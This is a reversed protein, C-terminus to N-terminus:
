RSRVHRRARHQPRGHGGAPGLAGVRDRRALRRRRHGACGVASSRARSWTSATCPRSGSSTPASATAARSGASWTWAATTSRRRTAGARPRRRRGPRGLWPSVLVDDPRGTRTPCSGSGSASGISWASGDGLRRHLRDPGRERDAAADSRARAPQSRGRSRRRGARQPPGPHVPQRLENAGDYFVALDPRQGGASSSGAAAAVGALERLRAHAYNVVRVPIGDAEALRAFESPITHEDRQFWGFM